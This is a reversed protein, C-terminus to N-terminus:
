LNCTKSYYVTNQNVLIIYHIYLSSHANSLTSVNASFLTTTQHSHSNFPLALPPPSKQAINWNREAYGENIGFCPYGCKLGKEGNVGGMGDWGKGRLERRSMERYIM